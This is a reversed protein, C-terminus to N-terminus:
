LPAERGRRRERSSAVDFEVGEARSLVFLRIRSDGYPSSTIQIERSPMDSEDLAPSAEGSSSRVGVAEVYADEYEEEDEEM